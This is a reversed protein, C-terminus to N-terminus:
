HKGVTFAFRVTMEQALSPLQLTLHADFGCLEVAEALGVGVREV